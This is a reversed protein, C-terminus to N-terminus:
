EGAARRTSKAQKLLGLGRMGFVAALAIGASLISRRDAIRAKEDAAQVKSREFEPAQQLYWAVADRQHAPVPAPPREPGAAPTVARKRRRAPMAVCLWQKIMAPM